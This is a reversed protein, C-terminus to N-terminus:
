EDRRSVPRSDNPALALHLEDGIVSADGQPPPEARRFLLWVSLGILATCVVMVLARRAHLLTGLLRMIEVDRETLVARVRSDTEFLRVIEDPTLRDYNQIHVNPAARLKTIVRNFNEGSFRAQGPWIYTLFGAVGLVGPVAKLFNSLDM